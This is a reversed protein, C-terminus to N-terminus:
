KVESITIDLNLGSNPIQLDTYRDGIIKKDPTGAEIFYSFDVPLYFSYKGNDDTITRAIEVVGLTEPEIVQYAIVEAGGLSKGDILVSGTINGARLDFDVIQLNDFAATSGGSSFISFSGAKPNDDYSEAILIENLVDVGFVGMSDWKSDFDYEYYSNRVELHSSTITWEPGDSIDSYVYFLLSDNSALDGLGINGWQPRSVCYASDSNIMDSIDMKLVPWARVLSDNYLSSTLS